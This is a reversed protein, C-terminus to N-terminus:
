APTLNFAIIFVNAVSLTASDPFVAPMAGYTVSTKSYNTVGPQTGLTSLFGMPQMYDRFCGRLLAGGNSNSAIWYLGPDLTIAAGATNSKVGTAATDFTAIDSGAVIAGPYTSGNDAYLAARCTTGGVASTVELIISTFSCRRAIYFPWAQIVNAQLGTNIVAPFVPSYYGGSRLYYTLPNPIGSLTLINRGISTTPLAAIATLDGDLPQYSANGETPTLFFSDYDSQEPTISGTRGNFDSVDGGGSGVLVQFANTVISKINRNRIKSIVNM